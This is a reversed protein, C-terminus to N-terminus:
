FNSGIPVQETNKYHVNNVTRDPAGVMTRQSDRENSVGDHQEMQM